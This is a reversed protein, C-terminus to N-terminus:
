TKEDNKHPNVRMTMKYCECGLVKDGEEFRSLDFMVTAHSYKVGLKDFLQKTNLYYYSGSKLVAFANDQLTRCVGMYFVKSDDSDPAILISCSTDLALQNTTGATFGLKGTSQITVKLRTAFDKADFIQGIM